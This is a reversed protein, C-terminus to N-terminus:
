GSAGSVMPRVSQLASDEDKHIERVKNLRTTELLLIRQNGRELLSAVVQRLMINGEGATVRGHADVVSVSGV